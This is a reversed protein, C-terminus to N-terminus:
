LSALDAFRDEDDSSGVADRVRQRDPVYATSVLRVRYVGLDWEGLENLRVGGDILAVRAPGHEIHAAFDNADHAVDNRLRAAVLAEAEDHARVHSSLEHQILTR